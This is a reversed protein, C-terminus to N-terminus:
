EFSTDIRPTKKAGSVFRLLEAWEGVARSKEWHQEFASRARAGMAARLEPDGALQLIRDMLQQGDGTPVSFGCGAQDILRAIEGDVAGIFLIPRAAASIGYFKSPVILGELEPSLSVLHVDAVGLTESLCEQPQYPHIQVNTLHRQVIERELIPFQAGGGVFAFSIRRVIDNEAAKLAQDHLLTMARVITGLHHARGFNGAYGVVFRDKLQWSNRIQNEAVGIPSILTGDAWNRILRIKETPIGEKKLHEAMSAGVVVNTTASNLSWNRLPWILRLGKSGLSGGLRLAVAIDPFIDQLWNVLRAGRLRAIGAAMLSLLPPDTKAIIIDDRRAAWWLRLAAAFYFSAYDLSRGFLGARGYQSSWVRHVDVGQIRERSALQRSSGDYRLRSTVVTVSVGRKSLAFALDSLLVSTPAHDPYFYRNLLVVRMNIVSPKKTRKL